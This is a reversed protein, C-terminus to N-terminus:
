LHEEQAIREEVARELDWKSRTSGTGFGIGKSIQSSTTSPRRAWGSRGRRPETTSHRFSMRGYCLEIEKILQSLLGLRILEQKDTSNAESLIQIIQLRFRSNKQHNL